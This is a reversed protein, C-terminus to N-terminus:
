AKNKKIRRRGGLDVRVAGRKGEVVSKRDDADFRLCGDRSRDDFGGTTDSWREEISGNGERTRGRQIRCGSLVIAQCEAIAFFFAFGGFISLGADGKPKMSQHDPHLRDM